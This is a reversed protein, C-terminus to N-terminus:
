NHGRKETDDILILLIKLSLQVKVDTVQSSKESYMKSAFCKIQM